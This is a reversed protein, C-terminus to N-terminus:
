ARRAASSERDVEGDDARASLGARAPTPEQEAGGVARRHGDDVANEAEDDNEGGPVNPVMLEDGHNLRACRRRQEDSEPRAINSTISMSKERKELPICFGVLRPVNPRANTIPATAASSAPAQTAGTTM